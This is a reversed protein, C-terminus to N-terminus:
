QTRMSAIIIGITIYCFFHFDKRIEMEKRNLTM